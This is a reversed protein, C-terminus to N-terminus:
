DRRVPSMIRTRASARQVLDGGHQALRGFQALNREALQFRGDFLELFGALGQRLVHLEEAAQLADAVHQDIGFLFVDHQDPGAFAPFDFGAAAVDDADGGAPRDHQQVVQKTARRVAFSAAWPPM